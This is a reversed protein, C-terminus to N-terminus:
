GYFQHIFRLLGTIQNLEPIRLIYLRPTNYHYTLIYNVLYRTSIMSIGTVLGVLILAHIFPKHFENIKSNNM